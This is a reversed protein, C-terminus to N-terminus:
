STKLRYYKVAQFAFVQCNGVSKSSINQLSPTARCSFFVNDQLVTHSKGGPNWPATVGGCTWSVESYHLWRDPLKCGANKDALRCMGPSIVSPNICASPAWACRNCRHPEHLVCLATRRGLEPKCYPWTAGPSRHSAWPLSDSNEATCPLVLIWKRSKITKM